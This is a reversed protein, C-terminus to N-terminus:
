PKAQTWTKAHPDFIWVEDTVYDPSAGGGILVLRDAKPSYTLTHWGRPTPTSDSAVQVKEWTQTPFDYTWMDNHPIEDTM